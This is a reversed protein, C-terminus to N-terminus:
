RDTQREEATGRGKGGRGRGEEGGKKGVEERKKRTVKVFIRLSMLVITHLM